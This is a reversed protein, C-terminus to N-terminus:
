KVNVYVVKIMYVGRADIRCVQVAYERERNDHRPGSEADVLHQLGGPSNQVIAATTFATMDSTGSFGVDYKASTSEKVLPGLSGRGREQVYISAIELVREVDRWTILLCCVTQLKSSMFTLESMGLNGENNTNWSVVRAPVLRSSITQEGGVGSRLEGILESEKSKFM